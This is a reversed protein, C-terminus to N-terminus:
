GRKKHSQTGFPETCFDDILIEFYNEAGEFDKSLMGVDARVKRM